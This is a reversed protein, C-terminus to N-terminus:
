DTIYTVPEEYRGTVNDLYVSILRHNNGDKVIHYVTEGYQINSGIPWLEILDRSGLSENLTEFYM